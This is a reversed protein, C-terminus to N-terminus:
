VGAPAEEAGRRVLVWFVGLGILAAVGFIGLMLFGAVYAGESQHGSDLMLGLLWPAVLSGVFGMLTNIGTAPGVQEPKAVVEPIYALMVPFFFMGFFGSVIVMASPLAVGPMFGVIVTTLTSAVIGVFLTWFKGWYKVAVIGLPNGLIQAVGLGAILYVSTTESSGHVDQLFSPAWALAGMGLALGATNCLGLLLVRGNTSVAGLSAALGRVTTVGAPHCPLIRVSKQALAAVGVALGLGATTLFVARYGGASQIAPMVFLAVMTGVGFGLGM